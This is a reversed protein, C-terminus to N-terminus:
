CCPCEIGDSLALADKLWAPPLDGDGVEEVPKFVTFHHRAGGRPWFTVATQRPPCGPFNGAAETVVVIADDSLAFRSRTWAKLQEVADLHAPGSRTSGFAGPSGTDSWLSV